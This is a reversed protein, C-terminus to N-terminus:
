REDRLARSIEVIDQKQRDMTRYALWLNNTIPDAPQCVLRLRGDAIATHCLYTPLVSLGYGLEVSRVITQLDPIILIPQIIPRRKFHQRWFRRIIPLDNGYSIWPQALMWQELTTQEATSTPNEIPPDIQTDGVVIFEEQDLARYEIGRIHPRETAIVVDLEEQSLKELLASTTGFHAHYRLKTNQLRPLAVDTFYERPTGIHMLPLTDSSSRRVNQSVHELTELADVVQTYLMKGHETPVMRRPTRVFLLVGVAAELAALHQTVAPQTLSRETAAGTVTGSRYISVFSLYWDLNIM